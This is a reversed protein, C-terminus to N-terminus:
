TRLYREIMMGSRPSMGATSHNQLLLLTIFYIITSLALYYFHLGHGDSFSLIEMPLVISGLKTGVM